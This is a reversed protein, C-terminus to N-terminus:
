PCHMVYHSGTMVMFVSAYAFIVASSSLVLLANKVNPMAEFATSHASILAAIRKWTVVPVILVFPSFYVAPSHEPLGSQYGTWLYLLIATEVMVFSGYVSIRVVRLLIRLKHEDEM